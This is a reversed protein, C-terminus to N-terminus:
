VHCLESGSSVSFLLHEYGALLFPKDTSYVVPYLAEHVYPDINHVIISHSMVM